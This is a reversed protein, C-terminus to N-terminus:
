EVTVDYSLKFTEGANIVRNFKWQVHTYREAPAPKEVFQPLGNVFEFVRVVPNAVFNKGKDISFLVQTGDIPKASQLRYVMNNPVPQTVKLNQAQGNGQNRGTVTYRLEMGPLVANGPLPQWSVQTIGKADKTVVKKAVSLQLQIDARAAQALLIPESPFANPTMAVSSFTPIAIALFLTGLSLFHIGKM